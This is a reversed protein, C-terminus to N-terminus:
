WGIIIDNKYYNYRYENDKRRTDIVKLGLETMKHIFLSSLVDGVKVQISSLDIGKYDYKEDKLSFKKGGCSFYTESCGSQYEWFETTFTITDKGNNIERAIREKLYDKYEQSDFKDEFYDRIENIVLEEQQERNNKLEKIEDMFNKM